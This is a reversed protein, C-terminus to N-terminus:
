YVRLKWSELAQQNKIGGPAAQSLVDNQSYDNPNWQTLTELNAIFDERTRHVYSTDCTDMRIADVPCAEVCLGCFVCVLHDIEFRSPKKEIRGDLSSDAEIYICNAPCAAACMFCAVCRPTGDPRLMLRHKARYTPLIEPKMEPYPVTPLTEYRFFGRLYHKMTTFLGRFAEFIYLREIWNMPKQKIQRVM